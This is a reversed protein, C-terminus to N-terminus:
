FFFFTYQPFYCYFIFKFIFLYIFLCKAYFFFFFFFVSELVGGRCLVANLKLREEGGSDIASESPIAHQRLFAFSFSIRADLLPM